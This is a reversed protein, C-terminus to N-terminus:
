KKEAAFVQEKTNELAAERLEESAMDVLQQVGKSLESKKNAGSSSSASTGGAGGATGAAGAGGGARGFTGRTGGTVGSSANQSVAVAAAAQLSKQISALQQTTQKEASEGQAKQSSLTRMWLYDQTLQEFISRSVSSM